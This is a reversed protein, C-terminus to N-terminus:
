NSGNGSRDYIVVNNAMFWADSLLRLPLSVIGEPVDYLTGAVNFIFRRPVTAAVMEDDVQFLTSVPSFRLRPPLDDLAAM